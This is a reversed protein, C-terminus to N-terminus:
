DQNIDYKSVIDYIKQRVEVAFKNSSFSFHVSNIRPQVPDPPLQYVPGEPVEDMDDSKVLYREGYYQHHALFGSVFYQYEEYTIVGNGDYDITKFMPLHYETVFQDM